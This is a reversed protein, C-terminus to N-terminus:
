LGGACAACDAYCAAAYPSGAVCGVFPAGNLTCAAHCGKSAAMGGDCTGNFAFGPADTSLCAAPAADVDADAQGAAGGLEAGATGGAARAGEGQGGAGGLPSVEGCGAALLLVLGLVAFWFCYIVGDKFM